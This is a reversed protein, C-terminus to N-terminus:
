SRNRYPYLCKAPSDQGSFEQNASSDAFEVGDASLGWSWNRNVASQRSAWAQWWYAPLSM